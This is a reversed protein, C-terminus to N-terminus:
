LCGRVREAYKGSLSFANAIQYYNANTSTAADILTPPKAGSPSQRRLSTADNYIKNVSLPIL